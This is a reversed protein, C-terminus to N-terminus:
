AAKRANRVYNAKVVGVHYTAIADDPYLREVEDVLAWGDDARSESLLLVALSLQLVARAYGSFREVSRRLLREKTELRLDQRFDISVAAPDLARRTAFLVTGWEALDGMEFYGKECYYEMSIPLWPYFSYIYDQHAIVSRGPVLATYFQAIVHQQIDWGWLIDVFLLDIPTGDWRAQRIDGPVTRVYPRDEGLLQLFVPEFSQGAQVGYHGLSHQVMFENAVFLDYSVIVPDAPNAPMGAQRVGEALAATSGGLYCGLDVIKGKRSALRSALFALVQREEGGLMAPFSRVKDSVPHQQWVKGHILDNALCEKGRAVKRVLAPLVERGLARASRRGLRLARSRLSGAPALRHVTASILHACRWSLSRRMDEIQARHYEALAHERLVSEEKEALQTRQSQVLSDRDLIYCHRAYSLEESQVLAAELRAVTDHLEARSRHAQQLAAQTEQLATQTQQLAAQTEQLVAQSGQLAAQCQQLEHVRATHRQQEDALTAELQHIHWRLTLQRGLHFFFDRIRAADEAGADLLPALADPCRGGVLLVGLGHQHAFAFSRYRLRVEEWLRWVGFDRERVNIDHFLVVGRDSVKPLWSDFDHRVADYTHYGDIHLLDISGDPFNGLAEDFTSCVLRSFAGFLPDHFAKLETLMEPGNFGSHPDGKWTDVAYARCPLGLQAVAQCFGCYSVGTQTGLEVLVAPRVMDVLAMAFPVHEMWQSHTLRRPPSLCVPYDLPNFTSTM